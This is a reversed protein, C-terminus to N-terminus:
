SQKEEEQKSESKNDTHRQESLSELGEIKGIDSSCFSYTRKRKQQNSKNSSRNSTLDSETGDDSSSYLSGIMM